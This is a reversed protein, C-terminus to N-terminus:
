TTGKPRHDPCFVFGREDPTNDPRTKDCIRCPAILPPSDPVVDVATMMELMVADRVADALSDLAATVGPTTPNSHTFNWATNTGGALTVWAILAGGQCHFGTVDM